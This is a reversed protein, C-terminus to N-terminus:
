EALSFKASKATVWFGPRRDVPLEDHDKRTFAAGVMVTANGPSRRVALRKDDPTDITQARLQALGRFKPSITVDAAGSPAKITVSEAPVGRTTFEANGTQAHLTGGHLKDADVRVDGKLATLSVMGFRGGVDLSGAEVRAVLRLGAPMTITLRGTGYDIRVTEGIGVKTEGVGDIKIVDTAATRITVAADKALLVIGTIGDAPIHRVISETIPEPDGCATLLLALTLIKRM